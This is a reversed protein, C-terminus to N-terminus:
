RSPVPCSLDGEPCRLYSKLSEIRADTLTKRCNSRVMPYASGSSTNATAFSCEAGRFAIWAAEATELEDSLAPSNQLRDKIESYLDDLEHESRQLDKASCINFESQTKPDSCEDAVASSTWFAVGLSVVALIRM